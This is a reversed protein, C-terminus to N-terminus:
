WSCAAWTSDKTGMSRTDDPRDNKACEIKPIASLAHIFQTNCILVYFLLFIGNSNALRKFCQSLSCPWFRGSSSIISTYVAAACQTICGYGSYDSDLAQDYGAFQILCVAVLRTSMSTKGAFKKQCWGVHSCPREPEHENSSRGTKCSRPPIIEGFQERLVHYPGHYRDWACHLVPLM